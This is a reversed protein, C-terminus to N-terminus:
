GTCSFDTSIVSFPLTSTVGSLPYRREFTLTFTLTAESPSSFLFLVNISKLLNTLPAYKYLSILEMSKLENSVLLAVFISFINLLREFRVDSSKLENM